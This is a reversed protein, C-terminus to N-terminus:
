TCAKKFRVSSFVLLLVSLTIGVHKNMCIVYVCMFYEKVKSFLRKIWDLCILRRKSKIYMCQLGISFLSAWNVYAVFIILKAIFFTIMNSDCWTWFIFGPVCKHMVHLILLHVSQSLMFDMDNNLLHDTMNAAM